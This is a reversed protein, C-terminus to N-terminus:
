ISTEKRVPISMVYNSLGSVVASSSAQVQIDTVGEEEDDNVIDESTNEYNM